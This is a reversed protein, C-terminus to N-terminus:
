KMLTMKKIQSRNGDVKLEYFYVGSVFNESNWIVQHVGSQKQGNLLTAVEQGLTNYITLKVNATNKLSFSITTSPNFPNPYNQSLSFEAELTWLNEVATLGSKKEKLDAVIDDRNALYEAKKEPFWNLDGLPLGDSASTMLESNSYSFDFPLPWQKMYPGTESWDVIYDTLWNPAPTVPPVSFYGDLFGKLSDINSDFNTFQPDQGEIIDGITWNDDLAVYDYASQPLIGPLNLTDAETYWAELAAEHFFANNGFYLSVSDMSVLENNDTLFMKLNDPPDETLKADGFGVWGWNYYLNNAAILEKQRLGLEHQTTNVLTNHAYYTETNYFAGDKARIPAGMNVFTNNECIFSSTGTGIVFGVGRWETNSGDWNNLFVCNRVIYEGGDSRWRNQYRNQTVILNDLVIRNGSYDDIFRGVTVGADSLGAYITNKLIFEGGEFLRFYQNAQGNENAKFLVVPPHGDETDYMLPGNDPGVIECKFGEVDLRAEFLYFTNRELKYVRNPNLREGTETTDGLIQGNVFQNPDIVLTDQDAQAMLSSTLLSSSLFLLMLLNRM